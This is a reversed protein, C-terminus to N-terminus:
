HSTHIVMKKTAFLESEVVVEEAFVSLTTKFHVTHRGPEAVMYKYRFKGPVGYDLSLDADKGNDLNPTLHNTTIYVPIPYYQEMITNPITFSIDVETGVVMPIPNPSITFKGFQAAARLQLKIVRRLVVGGRNTAVIFRATNISHPPVTPNTRALIYANGANRVVSFSSIVQESAINSQELEINVGANNETVGDPLYSFGIRFEKDDETLTKFTREVNLVSIGDTICTYDELVVSYLLNNSAASNMAEQLTARGLGTVNTIKVKYHCNRIVDYLHDTNHEVLDIKYYTFDPSFSYRGKIIIYLPDKSGINKREYCYIPSAWYFGSGAEIFDSEKIQQVNASLPENLAGEEFALSTRSFPAVTGRDLYSGIAFTTEVLYPNTGDGGASSDNVSIAAVNRILEITAPFANETIGDPLVVRQWYAVKKGSVSLLPVIEAENKGLSAADSFSAWDHNAIFHVIRKREIAPLRQDTSRFRVHYSGPSGNRVAQTRSLFNGNQDFVLLYLSEIQGEAIPTGRSEVIYEDAGITNFNVVCWDKTSEPLDPEETSCGVALLIFMLLYLFYSTAKM